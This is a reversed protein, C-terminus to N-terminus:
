NTASLYESFILELEHDPNRCSLLRSAIAHVEEGSKAYSGLCEEVCGSITQNIVKTTKPKKTRIQSVFLHAKNGVFDLIRNYADPVSESYYGHLIPKRIPPPLHENDWNHNGSIFRDLDDQTDVQFRIIPRTKLYISEFTLDSYLVFYGKEPPENIAQMALPGPSVLLVNQGSAGIGSALVHKHFDGSIVCKVHPVDSLYCEPNVKMGMFDFWVQHAILIDTSNPIRSLESKIHDHRTFDLGYFEIDGLKFSKKHTHIVNSRAGISLWTADRTKEHQGQNYYVSLNADTMRNM